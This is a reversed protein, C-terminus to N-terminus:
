NNDFPLLEIAKTDNSVRLRYYGRSGIEGTNEIDNYYFNREIVPDNHPVITTRNHFSLKMQKAKGVQLTIEQLDYTKAGDFQGFELWYREMKYYKTNQIQLRKPHPMYYRTMHRYEEDTYVNSPDPHYTSDNYVVSVEERLNGTVEPALLDQGNVDELSIRYVIPAFDWIRKDPTDDDDSSCATPGLSMVFLLIIPYSFSLFRKM